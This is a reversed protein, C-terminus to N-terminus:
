EKIKNHSPVIDIYSLVVRLDNLYDSYDISLCIEKNNTFRTWSCGIFANGTIIAQMELGDGDHYIGKFTRQCNGAGYKKEIDGKIGDFLEQDRAEPALFIVKIYYLKYKFFYLEVSKAPRNEVNVNEFIIFQDTIRWEPSARWGKNVGLSMADSYDMGFTFGLPKDLVYASIDQDQAHLRILCFTLLISIFIKNRSKMGEFILRLVHPHQSTTFSRGM